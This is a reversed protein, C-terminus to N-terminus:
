VCATSSVKMPKCYHSFYFRNKYFFFSFRSCITHMYSSCTLCCKRVLFFESISQLELASVSEEKLQGSSSSLYTEAQSSLRFVREPWLNLILMTLCCESLSFYYYNLPWVTNWLNGIKNYNLIKFIFKLAVVKEWSCSPVSHIKLFKIYNSILLADCVRM